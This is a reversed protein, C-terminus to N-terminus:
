ILTICSRWNKWNVTLVEASKWCLFDSWKEGDNKPWFYFKLNLNWKSWTHIFVPLFAYSNCIQSEWFSLPCTYHHPCLRTSIPKVSRGINPHAIARGEGGDWVGSPLITWFIVQPHYQQPQQPLERPKEKKLPQFLFLHLHRHPLHGNKKLRMAQVKWPPCLHPHWGPPNGGM